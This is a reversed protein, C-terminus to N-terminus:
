KPGELTTRRAASIATLAQKAKETAVFSLPKESRGEFAVLVAMDIIAPASMDDLQEAVWSLVQAAVFLPTAGEHSKRIAWVIELVSAQLGFQANELRNPYNDNM